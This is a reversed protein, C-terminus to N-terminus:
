SFSSWMGAHAIANVGSYASLSAPLGMTLNPDYVVTQPLIRPDSRTTKRNDVTEGLIPTMESGAYSTAVCIHPLGTRIAIAKGLGTTSGGGVSIICDTAKSKAFELAGETIHIPTHMTAESFVGVAKNGIIDQLTAAQYTQQPTCLILARTASLRALEEPLQSISGAGFVVRSPNASYTFSHTQLESPPPLQSMKVPSTRTLPCSFPKPSRRTSVTLNLNVLRCRM